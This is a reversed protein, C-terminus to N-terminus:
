GRNLIPRPADHFHARTSQSSQQNGGNGRADPVTARAKSRLLQSLQGLTPRVLDSHAPSQVRHGRM